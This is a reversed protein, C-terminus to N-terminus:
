NGLQNESSLISRLQTVQQDQSAIMRQQKTLWQSYQQPTVVRVYAIM